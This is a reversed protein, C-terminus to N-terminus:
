KEKQNWTPPTELKMALSHTTRLSTTLAINMAIRAHLRM